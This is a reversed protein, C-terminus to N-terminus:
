RRPRRAATEEAAESERAFTLPDPRRRVVLSIAVVVALGLKLLEATSYAGHFAWFKKKEPLNPDAPLFDLVRGMTTIMPTMVFRQALVIAMMLLCIGILIKPPRNGFVLILLLALGLALQMWEWQEFLWANSEGAARRLLIRAKEHGLDHILEASQVGPDALFRGVAQFNGIATVDM